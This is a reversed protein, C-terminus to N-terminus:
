PLVSPHPGGLVIRSRPSASRAVEVVQRAGPYQVTLASIGVLPYVASRLRDALTEFPHAQLPLDLIEPSHGSDRLSSALYALGIPFNPSISKLDYPPRVLLVKM